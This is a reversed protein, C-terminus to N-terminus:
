LIVNFVIRNSSLLNLHLKVFRVIMQLNSPHLLYHISQYSESILEILVIDVYNLQFL